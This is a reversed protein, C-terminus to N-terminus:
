TEISDRLQWCPTFTIQKSDYTNKHNDVKAWILVKRVLSIFDFWHIIYFNYYFLLVVSLVSRQCNGTLSM